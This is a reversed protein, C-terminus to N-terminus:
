TSAEVAEVAEFYSQSLKRLFELVTGGIRTGIQRM